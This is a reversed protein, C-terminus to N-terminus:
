LYMEKQTNYLDRYYDKQMLEEHNGIAYIKGDKLVIIQDMQSTAGLRHSILLSIKGKLIEYYKLYMKAESIPDLLANPEDLIYFGADKLLSRMIGVRQWEGGSLSVADKSIGSLNTNIGEPLKEIIKDIGLSKALDEDLNATASFDLNELLTAPYHHSNQVVISIQEKLSEKKFERIDLGNIFINGRTPTYLGMMLKTITSKGSGNEGVLGYSKGELKFSVGKLIERDSNPYSFYVDCFEISNIRELNKDGESEEKLNLFDSFKDDIIKATKYDFYSLVLEGINFKMEILQYFLSLFLGISVVKNTTKTFFLIYFIILAIFLFEYLFDRIFRGVGLKQNKKTAYSFEKVFKKNFFPTSRFIKRESLFSSNIMVNSYYNARRMNARYNSWIDGAKKLSFHEMIILALVFVLISFAFLKNYMFLIFISGLIIILNKLIVASSNILKRKYDSETFCADYLNKTEPTELLSVPLHNFKNILSLENNTKLLNYNYESIKADIILLLRNLVILFIFPLFYKLFEGGMIGGDLLYTRAKIMLISYVGFLIYVIYKLIKFKNEKM